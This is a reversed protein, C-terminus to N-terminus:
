PLKRYIDGRSLFRIIKVSGDIRKLGLRYDGIRIRFYDPHGKMVKVNPIPDMSESGVLEVLLTEVRALLNRDRVRRLDREFSKHYEVEM